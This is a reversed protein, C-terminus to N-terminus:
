HSLAVCPRSHCMGRPQHSCPARTCSLSRLAEWTLQTHRPSFRCSAPDATAPALCCAASVVENTFFENPSFYFKLTFGTGADENLVATIDTLHELM